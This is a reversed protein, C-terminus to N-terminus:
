YFCSLTQHAQKLRYRPNEAARHWLIRDIDMARMGTEAALLECVQGACARIEIEEESGSRIERGSDIKESLAPSYELLGDLRLVHPVDNDALITLDGFDNFLTGFGAKEYGQHLDAAASQARKLFPINLGKYLHVDNFHRLAALQGALRVASGGASSVFTSFSGDYGSIVAKGTERLALTCIRAFDFSYNKKESLRLMELCDGPMIAVMDEASMPGQAEFREKLYTAVTFYLSGDVLEWGEEKLYPKYGSGFNISDLAIIYAATSERDGYYHHETDILEAQPLPKLAAAYRPILDHRIKVHAAMRSVTEFGWRVRELLNEPSQPKINLAIM